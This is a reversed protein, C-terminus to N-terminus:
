YTYNLSVNWIFADSLINSQITKNVVSSITLPFNRKALTFNSAAYCGEKEDLKLYYIQPAVKMYFTESLKINSFSSNVAVYNTNKTADALGRSYLYYLGVSVNKTLSYNPAIEGAVFRRVTIIDKSVGDIIIATNKFVYAPHVGLGLSFKKSQVLKYRMWFLFSWPKVDKIAFRFQPEFSVRKKRITLDFIVAPKGLTFTPIVSVGNNTVSVSGGFQTNNKGNKEEQSFAAFSLLLFVLVLLKQNSYARIKM